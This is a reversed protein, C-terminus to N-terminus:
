GSIRREAEILDAWPGREAKAVAAIVTTHDRRFARGTESYSWGYRARCLAM